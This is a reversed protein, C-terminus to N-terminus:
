ARGAVRSLLARAAQEAQRLRRFTRRDLEWFLHDAAYFVFGGRDAVAIGASHGAVEIAFAQTMSLSGGESVLVM